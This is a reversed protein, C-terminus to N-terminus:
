DKFKIKFRGERVLARDHPAGDTCVAAALSDSPVDASFALAHPSGFPLMTFWFPAFVFLFCLSVLLNRVKGVRGAGGPRRDGGGEGGRRRDPRWHVSHLINVWLSLQFLFLLPLLSLPFSFLLGLTFSFFGSGRVGPGTTRFSTKTTTTSPKRTRRRDQPLLPRPRLASYEARNLRCAVRTACAGAGDCALTSSVVDRDHYVATNPLAGAIERCRRGHRCSRRLKNLRNLGCAVSQLVGRAHAHGASAASGM